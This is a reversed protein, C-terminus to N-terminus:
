TLYGAVDLENIFDALALSQQQNLEIPPWGLGFLILTKNTTLAIKFDDSADIHIDANKEEESDAIAVPVDAVAEIPAVPKALRFYQNKAGGNYIMAATKGAILSYNFKRPSVQNKIVYGRKVHNGIYASAGEIKLKDTFDSYPCNPHAEIHELLKLTTPKETMNTAKPTPKKAANLARLADGTNVTKIEDRRPPAIKHDTHINYPRSVGTPWIHLVQMGMRTINSRGIMGMEYMTDLLSNLDSKQIGTKSQLQSFSLTNKSDHGKLATQITDIDNM